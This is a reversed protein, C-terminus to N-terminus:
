FVSFLILQLLIYLEILLFRQFKRSINNSESTEQIYIYANPLCYTHLM